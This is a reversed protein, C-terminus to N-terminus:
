KIFQALMKLFLSKEYIVRSTQETTLDKYSVTLTDGNKLFLETGEPLFGGVQYIPWRVSANYLLYKVETSFGGGPGNKMPIHFTNCLQKSTLVMARLGTNM